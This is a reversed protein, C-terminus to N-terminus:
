PVIIGGPTKKERLEGGGDSLLLGKYSDVTNEAQVVLLEMNKVDILPDQTTRVARVLVDGDSTKVIVAVGRQTNFSRGYLRIPRGYTPLANFEWGGPFDVKDLGEQCYKALHEEYSFLQKRSQLDTARDAKVKKKVAEEKEIDEVVIKSGYKDVQRFYDASQFAEKEKAKEKELKTKDKRIAM